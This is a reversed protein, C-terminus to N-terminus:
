REDPVQRRELNTDLQRGKVIQMSVIPGRGHIVQAHTDEESAQEQQDEPLSFFNVPETQARLIAESEFHKSEENAPAEKREEVDSRPQLLDNESIYIPRNTHHLPQIRQFQTSHTLM